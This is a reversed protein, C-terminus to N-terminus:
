DRGLSAKSILKLDLSDFEPLKEEEIGNSTSSTTPHKLLRHPTVYSKFNNILLSRIYKCIIHPKQVVIKGM